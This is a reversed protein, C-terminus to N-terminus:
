KYYKSLWAFLRCHIKFHHLIESLNAALQSCKSLTLGTPWRFGSRFKFLLKLSHLFYWKNERVRSLHKEPIVVSKLDLKKITEIFHKQMRLIKYVGTTSASPMQAESTVMSMQSYQGPQEAVLPPEAPYKLICGCGPCPAGHINRQKTKVWSRLGWPVIVRNQPSLPTETCTIM